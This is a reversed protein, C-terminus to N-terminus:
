QNGRQIALFLNVLQGVKATMAEFSNPQRGNRAENGLWACFKKEWDDGPPLGCEHAAKLLADCAQEAAINLPAWESEKMEDEQTPAPPLSGGVGHSLSRTPGVVLKRRVSRTTRTTARGKAASTSGAGRVCGPRRRRAVFAVSRWSWPSGRRRSWRDELAPIASSNIGRGRTPRPYITRPGESRQSRSARRAQAQELVSEQVRRLPGSDRVQSPDVQPRM